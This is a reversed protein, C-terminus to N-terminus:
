KGDVELASTPSIKVDLTSSSLSRARSARSNTTRRNERGVLDCGSVALQHEVEELAQKVKVLCPSALTVKAESDGKLELDQSRSETGRALDATLTSDRLVAKLRGKIGQATVESVAMRLDLRGAGQVDLLAEEGRVTVSALAEKVTASAGEGLRLDVANVMKELLIIAGETAHAITRGEISKASGQGGQVVLRLTGAISEASLNSDRGSLLITAEEGGSSMIEAHYDDGTISLSGKWQDVRVSAGRAEVQANGGSNTIEVSGSKVQLVFDGRSDSISFESRDGRLDVKGFFDRFVVEGGDLMSGITGYCDVLKYHTAEGRLMLNGASDITVDSDDLDFILPWNEISAAAGRGAESAAGESEESGESEEDDRGAGLGLLSVELDSGRIELRQGPAIVIRVALAPAISEDGYAQAIKISGEEESVLALGKTSDGRDLDTIEARPEADYEIEIEISGRHLDVVTSEGTLPIVAPLEVADGLSHGVTSFFLM